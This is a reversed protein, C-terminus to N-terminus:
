VVSKAGIVDLEALTFDHPLEGDSLVVADPLRDEILRRVFARLEAFRVCVVPAATLHRVADIASEFSAVIERRDRPSLPKRGLHDLLRAELEQDLRYVELRRHGRAHRDCIARRLDRRVLEVLPPTSKENAAHRALTELVQRLDRIPVQEQLLLQLVETLQQWSILTPIVSQVLHSRKEKHAEVLEYTEQIGVFAHANRALEREFHQLVVETPRWACRGAAAREAESEPVWAAPVRSAAYDGPVADLGSARLEDANAFVLVRGLEVRGRAFPAGHALFAYEGEALKTDSIVVNGEPLRVGLERSVRALRAGLDSHIRRRTLPDTPAFLGKLSSHIEIQLPAPAYYPPPAPAVEAPRAHPTASGTQAKEPAKRQTRQRMRLRRADHHPHGRRPTILLAPIQSVLGDGITLLSYTRARRRSRPRRPPRRDGIGGVLNIAVIVLGAIADGKVFKMAGDM